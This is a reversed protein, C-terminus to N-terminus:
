SNMPQSLASEEFDESDKNFFRETFEEKLESCIAARKGTVTQFKRRGIAQGGLTWLENRVRQAWGDSKSPDTVRVYAAFTIEAIKEAKFQKLMYDVAIKGVLGIGPLGSFMVANKCKKKKLFKVETM